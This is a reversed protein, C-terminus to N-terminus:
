KTVLMYTFCLNDINENRFLSVLQLAYLRTPPKSGQGVTGIPPHETQPSPRQTVSGSAMKANGPCGAIVQPESSSAPSFPKIPSNSHAASGSMGFKEPVHEQAAPIGTDGVVGAVGAGVDGDGVVGDGVVGDGVATAVGAGVKSIQRTQPSPRSTKFGLAM